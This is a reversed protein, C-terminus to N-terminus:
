EVWRDAMSDAKWGAMRVARMVALKSAMMGVRLEVMKVVM